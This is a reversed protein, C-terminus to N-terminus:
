TLDWINKGWDKSQKFNQRAELRTAATSAIFRLGRKTKGEMDTYERRGWGMYVVESFNHLNAKLFDKVKKMTVISPKKRPELSRIIIKPGAKKVM